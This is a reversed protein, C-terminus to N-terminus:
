KVVLEIKKVCICGCGVVNEFFLFLKVLDFCAFWGFHGLVWNVLFWGGEPLPFEM